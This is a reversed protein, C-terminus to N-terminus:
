AAVARRKSPAKTGARARTRKPPDVIRVRKGGPLVAELKIGLAALMRFATETTPNATKATLQRRVSAEELGALHALERKTTGGAERVDELLGLLENRALLMEVKRNYKERRDAPILADLAADHPTLQKAV